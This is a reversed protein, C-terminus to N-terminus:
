EILDEDSLNTQYYDTELQFIRQRLSVICDTVLTHKASGETFFRKQDDLIEAECLECM